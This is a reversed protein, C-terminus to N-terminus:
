SHEMAPLIRLLRSLLYLTTEHILDQSLFLLYPSFQPFRFLTQVETLFIPENMTISICSLVLVLTIRIYSMLLLPFQSHPM